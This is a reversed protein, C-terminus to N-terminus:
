GDRYTFLGILVPYHRQVMTLSFVAITEHLPVTLSYESDTLLV